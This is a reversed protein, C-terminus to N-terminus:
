FTPSPGSANPNEVEPAPEPPLPSHADPEPNREELEPLPFPQDDGEVRPIEYVVTGLDEPERAGECGALLLLSGGMLLAAIWVVRM